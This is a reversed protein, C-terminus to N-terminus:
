TPASGVIWSMFHRILLDHSQSESESRQWGLAKMPHLSPIDLLFPSFIHM